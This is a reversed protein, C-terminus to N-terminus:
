FCGLQKVDVGENRLVRKVVKTLRDIYIRGNFNPLNIGEFQKLYEQFEIPDFYDKLPRNSRHFNNVDVALALNAIETKGGRSHPIIHELTVNKKTLKGGYIGKTVSPMHGKLWETKLVSKYGFSVNNLYYAQVSELPVKKYSIPLTPQNQPTTLNYNNKYSVPLNNVVEIKM